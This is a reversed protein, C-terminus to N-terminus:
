PEEGSRPTFGQVRAVDLVDSLLAAATEQGGAGKGVMTLAGALESRIRVANLVGSVDLTSGRPVLRPGVRIPGERAAEAVLKVRYGHKTALEVAERTVARIGAIQVEKFSVDRGLLQNALITIKAGADLGGIDASPDAEAYGMAQAEKLAQPLDSGEDHMRTLVFNSTGNLIGDVRLVRDGALGYRHAHFAPIAGAVTAEFRLPVHRKAAREHLERFAFAVPGKNALVAPMGAELAARVHGLAPQANALNTPTAEVFADAGGEFVLDLVEGRQWPLAAPNGPPLGEPARAVRERRAIGVVRPTIGYQAALHAAREHLVRHLARGVTGYGALLVRFPKAEPM